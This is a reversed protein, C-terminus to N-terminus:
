KCAPTIFQGWFCNPMYLLWESIPSFNWDESEM